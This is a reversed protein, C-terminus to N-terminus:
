SPPRSYVGISSRPKRRRMLGILYTPATKAPSPKATEVDDVLVVWHLAPTGDSGQANVTSPDIGPKLLSRVTAMDRIRAADALAAATGAEAAFGAAPTLMLAFVLATFAFPRAMRFDRRKTLNCVVTFKAFECTYLSIAAV